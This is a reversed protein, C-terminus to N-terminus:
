NKVSLMFLIQTAISKNEKKHQNYVIRKMQIFMKFNINQTEVELGHCKSGIRTKILINAQDKWCTLFCM